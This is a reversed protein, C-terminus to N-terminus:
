PKATASPVAATVEVRPRSKQKGCKLSSEPTPRNVGAAGVAHVTGGHWRIRARAEMAGSWHFLAEDRVVGVTAIAQLCGPDGSRRPLTPPPPILGLASHGDVGPAAHLTAPEVGESRLGWGGIGLRKWGVSGRLCAFKLWGHVGGDVGFDADAVGVELDGVEFAGDAEIAVDEAELERLAEAVGRGEEGGTAIVVVDAEVRPLTEAALGGCGASGTKVVVGDEIRGARGQGVGKTPEPGRTDFEIARGVVADAFGEVEAVGIVVSNFEVAVAGFGFPGPGCVAAERHVCSREIEFRKQPCGRRSECSLAFAAWTADNKSRAETM